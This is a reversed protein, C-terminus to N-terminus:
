SKETQSLCPNQWPELVPINEMTKVPWTWEFVIWLSPHRIDRFEDLYVLVGAKNAIANDKTSALTMRGRLIFSAVCCNLSYYGYPSTTDFYACLIEHDTCASLATM